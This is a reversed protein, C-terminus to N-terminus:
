YQYYGDAAYKLAYLWVYKNQAWIEDMEAPNVPAATKGVELTVSPCGSGYLQAYDKFGGGNGSYLMRYGTLVLMNNALFRSKERVKNGDIDWYIVQGMAHYNILAKYSRSRFLGALAKTENESEAATGKYGSYSPEPSSGTINNWNSDFNQNLDVGRANAKWRVLYEDLSASTRGAALDNNYIQEINKRLEENRIGDLGFQSISVGDPNAMPVFHLCTDNFMDSLKKGDWGGTDYYCLAYEIQKMVLNSTIYERGHIAAPILVHNRAYPNGVTVEYISRGDATTGISRYSMHSPYRRSLEDLDHVMYDYTYMDPVKVIPDTVDLATFAVTGAPISQDITMAGQAVKSWDTEGTQASGSVGPGTQQGTGPAWIVAGYTKVMPNLGM